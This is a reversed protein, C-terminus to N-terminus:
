DPPAHRKLEPYVDKYPLTLTILEEGGKRLWIRAGQEDNSYQLRRGDFPNLPVEPMFEPVLDALDDPYIGTALRCREVALAAQTVRCHAILKLHRTISSIPFSTIAKALPRLGSIRPGTAARRCYWEWAETEPLDAAEMWETLYRLACALESNALGPIVRYEWLADNPSGSKPYRGAATVMLDYVQFVETAIIHRLDYRAPIEDITGQLVELQSQDLVGARLIYAVLDLALRDVTTAVVIGLFHSDNALARNMRVLDVTLQFVDPGDGHEGAYVIGIALSHAAARHTRIHPYPTELVCIKWDIHYAGHELACARRIERIAPGNSSVFVEMATLEDATPRRDLKAFDRVHIFPLLSQVTAGQKSNVWSKIQKGQTQLTLAMNLHDPLVPVDAKLEDISMPIGRARADAIAKRLLAEGYFHAAAGIVLVVAACL